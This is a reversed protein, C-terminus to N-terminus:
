GKMEQRSQTNNQTHELHTQFILIKKQCPSVKPTQLFYMLELFRCMISLHSATLKSKMKRMELALPNKEPDSAKM